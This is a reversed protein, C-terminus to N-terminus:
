SRTQSLQQSNVNQRKDRHKVEQELVDQQGSWVHCEKFSNRLGPLSRNDRLVLLQMEMESMGTM